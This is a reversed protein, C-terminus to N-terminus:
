LSNTGFPDTDVRMRFFMEAADASVFAATDSTTVIDMDGSVRSVHLM